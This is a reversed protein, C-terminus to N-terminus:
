AELLNMEFMLLSVRLLVQQKQTDNCVGAHKECQFALPLLWLSIWQMYFVEARQLEYIVHMCNSFLVGNKLLSLMILLM